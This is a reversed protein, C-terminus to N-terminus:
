SAMGCKVLVPQLVRILESPSMEALLGRRGANILIRPLGAISEEMYLPLAKKTGFPSVGGVKYGTHKEATKQDCPHVAKVGLLRALTKTSVERDGHMLIILPSKNDDEMVLTKIVEHEDVGLERASVRTGGRDEYKYPRPIFAAQNKKLALLATTVPTKDRSM